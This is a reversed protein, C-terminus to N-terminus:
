SMMYSASSVDVQKTAEPLVLALESNSRKKLLLSIVSLSVCSILTWIQCSITQMPLVSSLPNLSENWSVFFDRLLANAVHNLKSSIHSHQLVKHKYRQHIGFLWLLRPPVKNSLTSAMRQWFLTSLNDTKSLVTHEQIDFCQTLAELHLLGEVLKFKSNSITGTLNDSSVLKDILFQLWEM